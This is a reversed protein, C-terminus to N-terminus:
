APADQRRNGRLLRLANLVVVIAVGSDGLVAAWLPVQGIAAFMLLILKSGIAFIINQRIIQSTDRGLVVMSPLLEIRDNMLAVDAVEIAIDSGIAGM